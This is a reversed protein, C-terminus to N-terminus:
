NVEIVFEWYIAEINRIVVVKVWLTMLKMHQHEM